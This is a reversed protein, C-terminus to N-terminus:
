RIALSPLSPLRSLSPISGYWVDQVRASWCHTWYKGWKESEVCRSDFVEFPGFDSLFSHCMHNGPCEDTDGQGEHTCHRGIVSGKLRKRRESNVSLPDVFGSDGVVLGERGDKGFLPDGQLNGLVDTQVLDSLIQIKEKKKLEFSNVLNKPKSQLVDLVNGDGDVLLEQTAAATLLALHLIVILKMKITTEL